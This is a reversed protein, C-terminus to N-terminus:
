NLDVKYYFEALSLSDDYKQNEWSKRATIIKKMFYHM